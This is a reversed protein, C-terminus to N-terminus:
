ESQALHWEALAAKDRTKFTPPTPRPDCVIRWRKDPYNRSVCGCAGSPYRVEPVYWGGHRWRAYTFAAPPSTAPISGGNLEDALRQAAQQTKFRRPNGNRGCADEGGRAYGQPLDHPIMRTVRWPLAGGSGTAARWLFPNANRAM